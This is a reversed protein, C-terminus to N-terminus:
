QFYRVWQSFRSEFQVQTGHPHVWALQFQQHIDNHWLDATWGLWGYEPGDHGSRDPEWQLWLVLRSQRAAWESLYQRLGAGQQPLYQTIYTNYFVIPDLASPIQNQLYLPLDDPLTLAHLTIPADTQNVMHFADIGERLRQHRQAQDPWIFAALTHEQVATKLRFPHIDCGTRSLIHPLQAVPYNLLQPQCHVLFQGSQGFGIDLFTHDDIADQLRYTRQDAALNLGASAGLDILHVATWNTYLLPLLWCLGRGTENTQVTATRIFEGLTPRRALIIQRLITSFNPETFDKLGGVSPYYAALDMTEPLHLLVDRHLGATLLLPIDFSNRDSGIELLWSAVADDDTELWNAITSFLHAYLPSYDAAFAAQKQFRYILKQRFDPENVPYKTVTLPYSSASHPVRM